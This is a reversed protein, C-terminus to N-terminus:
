LYHPMTNAGFGVPLSISPNNSLYFLNGLSLFVTILGLFISNMSRRAKYM